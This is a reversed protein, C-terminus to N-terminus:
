LFFFFDYIEINKYNNKLPTDVVVIHLPKQLSVNIEAVRERPVLHSRINRTLIHIIHITLQTKILVYVVYYYRPIRYPYYPIASVTYNIVLVSATVMFQISRYKRTIYLYTISGYNYQLQINNNPLHM